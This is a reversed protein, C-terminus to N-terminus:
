QPSVTYAMWSGGAAPDEAPHLVAADSFTALLGTIQRRLVAVSGSILDDRYGREGLALVMDLSIIRGLARGLEVMKRQPLSLDITFDTIRAVEAAARRTLDFSALFRRVNVERVKAMGKLVAETIQQYLIDNSGEFIQFPRSDVLARGAISDLRYGMGGMLQVLSQAAGHMMDTVVTKIANAELARGSCDDQVAAVTSSHSCMAACATCYAQLVALRDQVQDYQELPRGGVFRRSTHHRAEHYMRRLFGMAMGPFQLRSRHLLDLLMRVGGGRAKLRHSLPVRTDVRNRGYPIMYLGLSRYYEEVEIGGLSREWVFFSIARQLDHHGNTTGGAAERATLLWYDARGTLGGWHKVGQLHYHEGDQQFRTRMQLADSGFEPETIMLGGLAEEQLFAAFIRQQVALEGYKSLPQLFLAGNIGMTLSLPLSEWSCAELMALSEAVHQGRGGYEEPIFVGLPQEQLVATLVEEPVGRVTADEDTYHTEFLDHLRKRFRELFSSFSTTQM